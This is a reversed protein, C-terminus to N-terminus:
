ALPCTVHKLQAVNECPRTIVSILGSRRRTRAAFRKFLPGAKEEDCELCANLTCAPPAANYPSLLEKICIGACNKGDFVGDYNWIVACPRTFGLAEYCSIGWERNLNGKIACEKGSKTMDPNAMYAALDQTSSCLGCAGDHTITAGDSLAASASAYSIMKYQACSKSTYKIGCVAEPIDTM